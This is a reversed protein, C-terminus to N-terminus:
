VGPIHGEAVGKLGQMPRRYVGREQLERQDGAM